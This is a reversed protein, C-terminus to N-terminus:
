CGALYPLESSLLLWSEESYDRTALAEHLPYFAKVILSTGSDTIARLGVAALLFATPVRLPAPLVELPQNALNQIYGREASLICPVVHSPTCWACFALEAPSLSTERRLLEAASDALAERWPQSPLMQQAIPHQLWRLAGSMVETGARGVAERVSMHTAAILMAGVIKAWQVQGLSLRSPAEFIQLQVHGPLHWTEAEFALEPHHAIIM